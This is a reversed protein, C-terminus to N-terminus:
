LYQLQSRLGLLLEAALEINALEVVLHDIGTRQREVHQFLLDITSRASSPPLSPSSFATLLHVNVYPTVGAGAVVVRSSIVVLPRDVLRTLLLRMIYSPRERRQPKFSSATM